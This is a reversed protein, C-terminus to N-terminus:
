ALATWINSIFQGSSILIDVPGGFAGVVALWSLGTIIPKIFKLEVTKSVKFRLPEWLGMRVYRRGKWKWCPALPAVAFDTCGDGCVHSFMGLAVTAGILVPVPALNGFLPGLPEWVSWLDLVAWWAGGVLLACWLSHTFGRHVRFAAGWKRNQDRRDLDTACRDYVAASLTCWFRHMQWSPFYYVKWAQRRRRKGKPGSTKYKIEGTKADHQVEFRYPLWRLSRTVSAGEHDIDPWDGAWGGLLGLVLAGPAPVGLLAWITVVVAFSSREHNQSIM